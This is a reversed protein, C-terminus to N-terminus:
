LLHFAHRSYIKGSDYNSIETKNNLFIFWNTRRGPNEGKRVIAVVFHKCVNYCSPLINGYPPYLNVYTFGADENKGGGYPKSGPDRAQFAQGSLEPGVM